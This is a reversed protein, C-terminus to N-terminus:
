SADSPTVLELDPGPLSLQRILQRIEHSLRGVPRKLLHAIRQQLVANAPLRIV